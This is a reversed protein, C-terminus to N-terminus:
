WEHRIPVIEDREVDVTVERRGSWTDLFFRVKTRSLWGNLWGPVEVKGRTGPPIEPRLFGGIRRTTMVDDGAQM